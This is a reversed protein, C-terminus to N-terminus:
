FGNFIKSLQHTNIKNKSLLFGLNKIGMSSGLLAANLYLKVAEDIDAKINFLGGNEYAEALVLCADSSGCEIARNFMSHALREDKDVGEGLLYM